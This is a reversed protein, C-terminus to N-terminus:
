ERETEVSVGSGDLMLKITGSEDTRYLPIGYKALLALTERHPHGYDNGAGASVVAIEPSVATLFAETSSTSGGHHGLKLVTACLDQDKLNARMVGEAYAEADGTLLISTEGYQVRLVISWNNMGEANYDVGEFPSLIRISVDKDGLDLTGPAYVTKIRVHAQELAELMNLYSETTHPTDPLYFTGIEYTSILEAMSGIHDTHPHTAVVADLRTIGFGDLFRKIRAAYIAEGADVLMAKGGLTRLLICDGQGVDLVYVELADPAPAPSASVVALADIKKLIPEPNALYIALFLLLLVICFTGLVGWKREFLPSFVTRRKRKKTKPTGM